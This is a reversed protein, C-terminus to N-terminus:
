RKMTVQAFTRPCLDCAYPREGTHTRMHTKLHHEQTFRKSCEKCEFPKEGSHIRQHKQLVHKYGFSRDCIDCTFMRELKRQEAKLTYAGIKHGNGSHLKYSPTSHAREYLAPDFVFGHPEAIPTIGSISAIGSVQAEYGPSHGTTSSASGLSESSPKRSRKSSSLDLGEGALPVSPSPRKSLVVTQRDLHSGTHVDGQTSYLVSHMSAGTQSTAGSKSSLPPSESAQRGRAPSTRVLPPIPPLVKGETRLEDQLKKIDGGPTVPVVKQIRGNEGPPSVSSEPHGGGPEEGGDSPPSMSENTMM